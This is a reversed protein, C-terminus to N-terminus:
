KQRGLFGEYFYPLIYQEYGGGLFYVILRVGLVEIAVMLIYLQKKKIIKKGLYNSIIIYNLLFVSRPLRMFNDNVAVLPLYSLCFINIKKICRYYKELLGSNGRCKLVQDITYNFLVFSLLFFLVSFVMKRNSVGSYLYSLVKHIPLFPFITQIVTRGWQLLIIIFFVIAIVMKKITKEGLFVFFFLFYVFCSSHFMTALLCSIGFKIYGKKSGEILFFIGHVMIAMGMMSRLQESDMLYPFLFYFSSVLAPNQSYRLVTKSILFYAIGSYIALFMQFSFGMKKCVLMVMQMGIEFRVEKNLGTIRNYHIIYNKRDFGSISHWLLLWLFTMFIIYIYKKKRKIIGLVELIGAIILNIM